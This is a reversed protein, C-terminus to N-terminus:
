HGCTTFWLRRMREGRAVTTSLRTWLGQLVELEGELMEARESMTPFPLGLQRHEPEYWGAGVGVEIRGGSIEAVTTVAKAFSGPYRFTEPSVL